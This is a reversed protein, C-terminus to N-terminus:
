RSINERFEKMNQVPVCKRKGTIHKLEDLAEPQHQWSAWFTSNRKINQQGHM